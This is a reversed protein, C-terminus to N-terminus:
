PVTSSPGDPWPYRRLTVVAPGATALAAAYGDPVALDVIRLRRGDPLRARYEGPGSGTMPVSAMDLLLGLGASKAAAEKRVWHRLFATWRADDDALGALRRRVEGTCFEVPIDGTRVGPGVAEVDVGVEVGTAVAVALGYGSHAFSLSCATGDTGGKDVARAVIRAAAFRLAAEPSEYADVRQREAPTLRALVAPTLADGGLDVWWVDVRPQDPGDRDM